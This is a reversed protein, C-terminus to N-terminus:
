GLGDLEALRDLLAADDDRREERPGCWPGVVQGEVLGRREAEVDGLDILGSANRLEEREVREFPADQQVVALLEHAGLLVPNQVDGDEDRRARIRTDGDRTDLAAAPAPPACGEGGRRAGRVRVEPPALGLPLRARRAREPDRLVLDPLLDGRLRGAHV